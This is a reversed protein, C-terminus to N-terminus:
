VGGGGKDSFWNSINQNKTQLNEDAHLAGDRVAAAHDVELLGVVLRELQAALRAVHLLPLLAAAADGADDEEADAGEDVALHVRRHPQLAGAPGKGGLMSRIHLEGLRVAPSNM